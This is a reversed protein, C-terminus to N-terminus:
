GTYALQFCNEKPFSMKDSQMITKAVLQSQKQGQAVVLLTIKKKKAYHVIAKNKSFLVTGSM